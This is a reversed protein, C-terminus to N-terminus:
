SVRLAQATAADDFSGFARLEARFVKVGYSGGTRRFGVVSERSLLNGGDNFVDTRIVRTTWVGLKILENM